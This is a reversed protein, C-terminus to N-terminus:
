EEKNSDVFRKIKRGTTKDFERKRIVLKKVKKFLPQADNIKDIEGWILERVDDDTYSEGLEEGLEDEDLLVTAAITTSNIDGGTDGWVMSEAIYPIKSLEYEIEEPFVNKGNDTIIVNKKRGTIYIFDDADVYGLDGTYFWGNRLVEATAEPNNYYGMM